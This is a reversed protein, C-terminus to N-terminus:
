DGRVYIETEGYHRYVAEKRNRHPFESGRGSYSKRIKEVWEVWEDMWERWGKHCAFEYNQM